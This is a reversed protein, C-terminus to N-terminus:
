EEDDSKQDETEEQQQESIAKALTGFDLFFRLDAIIIALLFMLFTYQIGLLLCLIM